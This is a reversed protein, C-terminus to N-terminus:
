TYSQRAHPFYAIQAGTAYIKSLSTKVYVFLFHFLTSFQDIEIHAFAHKLSFSSLVCLYHTKKSKFPSFLLPFDFDFGESHSLFQTTHFLEESHSQHQKKHEEAGYDSLSTTNSYFPGATATNKKKLLFIVITCTTLKNDKINHLVEQVKDQPTGRLTELKTKQLIQSQTPKCITILLINVLALKTTLFQFYSM